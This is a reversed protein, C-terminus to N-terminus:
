DRVYCSLSLNISGFSMTSHQSFRPLLDDLITFVISDCIRFGSVFHSNCLNIVVSYLTYHTHKTDFELKTSKHSMFDCIVNFDQTNVVFYKPKYKDCLEFPSLKKDENSYTSYRTDWYLLTNSLHLENATFVNNLHNYLTIFTHDVESSHKTNINLANALRIYFSPNIDIPSHANVLISTIMNSTKMDHLAKILYYMSSLINICVNYHCSNDFHYLNYKPILFDTNNYSVIHKNTFLSIFEMMNSKLFSQMLPDFENINTQVKLIFKTISPTNDTNNSILEQFLPIYHRPFKNVFDNFFTNNSTMIFEKPTYAILQM